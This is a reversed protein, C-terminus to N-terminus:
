ARRASPLGGSQRQDCRRKRGQARGSRRSPASAVMARAPRLPLRSRFRWALPTAALSLRGFSALRFRLRPRQPAARPRTSHAGHFARVDKEDEREERRPAGERRDVLGREAVLRPSRVGLRELLLRGRETQLEDSVLAGGRVLLGRERLAAGLDQLPLQPLVLRRAVELARGGERLRECLM